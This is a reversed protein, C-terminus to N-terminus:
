VDYSYDPALKCFLATDVELSLSCYSERKEEISCSRSGIVLYLPDWGLISTLLPYESLLLIGVGFILYELDDIASYGFALM